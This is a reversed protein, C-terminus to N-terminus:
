AREESAGVDKGFSSKSKLEYKYSVRGSSDRSLTLTVYLPYGEMISIPWDEKDPIVAYQRDPLFVRGGAVNIYYGLSEDSEDGGEKEKKRSAAVTVDFPLSAGGEGGLEITGLHNQTIYYRVAEEVKEAQATGILIYVDDTGEGRETAFVATEPVSGNRTLRVYVRTEKGQELEGVDVWDEADWAANGGSDGAAPPPTAPTGGEEESELASVEVDHGNHDTVTGCHVQLTKKWNGDGDVDCLAKPKIRVAFDTQSLLDLEEECVRTYPQRDITLSTGGPSESVTYGVGRLVRRRTQQQNLYGLYDVLSNLWAASVIEGAKVKRPLQQSM